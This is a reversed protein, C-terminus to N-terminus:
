VFQLLKPILFIYNPLSDGLDITIYTNIETNYTCSMFMSTKKDQVPEIQETLYLM